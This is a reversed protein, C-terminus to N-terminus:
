NSSLRSRASTGHRVRVTASSTLIPESSTRGSGTSRGFSPRRRSKRSLRCCKRAPPVRVQRGLKSDTCKARLPCSACVEGPFRYVPIKRGREDKGFTLTRTEQGAPAGRDNRRHPAPTISFM